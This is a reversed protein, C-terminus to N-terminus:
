ECYKSSEWYGSGNVAVLSLADSRVLDGLYHFWGIVPKFCSAYCTDTKIPKIIDFLFDFLTFFTTM